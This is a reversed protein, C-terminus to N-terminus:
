IEIKFKKAPLVFSKISGEVTVPNSGQSTQVDRVATFYTLCMVVLSIDSSRLWSNWIYVFLDSDAPCLWEFLFFEVVLCFCLVFGCQKAINSFTHIIINLMKKGLAIDWGLSMDILIIINIKNVEKWDYNLITQLQLCDTSWVCMVFGSHM